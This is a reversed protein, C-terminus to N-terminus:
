TNFHARILRSTGLVVSRQVRELLRKGAMGTVGLSALNALINPSVEGCSGIVIPVVKVGKVYDRAYLNNLEGALSTDANCGDTLTMVDQVMSNTAYKHFKIQEMNKLTTYWAVGVEIIIIEKSTKDFVVLDPRNHRIFRSTHVSVDYLLKVMNNEVVAPVRQTFNVTKLGFKKCLSFYIERCAGNHRDLMLTARFKNCGNAVHQPTEPKSDCRRCVVAAGTPRGQAYICQEQVALANRMNIKSIVGKALWRTSLYIDVHEANLVGGATGRRKWEEYKIDTLINRLLKVVQRAAKTPDTYRAPESGQRSIMVGIEPALTGLVTEDLNFKKLTQDVDKFITRTKRALLQGFLTKSVGLEPRCQIYCWTYILAEYLAEEISKLGLGGKDCSLYLRGVNSIANRFNYEVLIKRCLIDFQRARNRTTVFGEDSVLLNSFLYKAVPTVTTNLGKVTATVTLNPELVLRIKKVMDAAIRDWAKSEDAIIRQEVGLYKYADNVNVWPIDGSSVNGISAKACKRMNLQFGISNSMKKVSDLMKDLTVQNRAYLKLDDMYFLHNLTLPSGNSCVSTRVMPHKKSLMHSIPAVALGFLLPSLTDGQLVGNKVKLTTSVDLRKGSRVCYEVTWTQMLATIAQYLHVDVKVTKLIYKLYAHPVSDFAKSYDIWAVSLNLKNHIADAAITRDLVTGQTCGWTRKSLACQEIPLINNRAVHVELWKTIMATVLKYCTNLCAIPRYNGPENLDGGKPILVVRGQTLWNPIRMRREKITIFWEFLARSAAGLKKWLLNPIGDPGTAKRPRTKRLADKWLSYDASDPNNLEQRDLLNMDQAWQTLEDSQEYTKSQGIITAWFNRVDEAPATNKPAEQSEGFIMRLPKSRLVKREESNRRVTVRQIVINLQSKLQECRSQLDCTKTIGGYRASVVKLNRAQKLTLPIHLKRKELINTIAGIYKRLYVEEQKQQDYWVKRAQNIPEKRLREISELSLGISYVIENLRKLSCSGSNSVRYRQVLLNCREWVEKDVKYPIKLPKREASNSVMMLHRKFIAELKVLEAIDGSKRVKTTASTTENGSVDPATELDLHSAPTQSKDVGDPVESSNDSVSEETPNCPELRVDSSSHVSENETPVSLTESPTGCTPNVFQRTLQDQENVRRSRTFHGEERIVLRQLGTKRERAFKAKLGYMQRQVTGLSPAVVTNWHNAFDQWGMFPNAARERLLASVEVVTWFVNNRSGRQPPDIVPAGITNGTAPTSCELAIVPIEEGSNSLNKTIPAMNIIIEATHQM